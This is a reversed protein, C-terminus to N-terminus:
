SAKRSKRHKKRQFKEWNLTRQCIGGLQPLDAIGFHEGYKHTRFQLWIADMFIHTFIDDYQALVAYLKTGVVSGNQLIDEPSELNVASAQDVDTRPEAVGLELSGVEEDTAMMSTTTSRVFLVFDL